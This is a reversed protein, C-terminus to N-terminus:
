KKKVKYLVLIGLIAGIGFIPTMNIFLSDISTDTQNNDTGNGPEEPPTTDPPAFYTLTFICSEEIIITYSGAQLNFLENEPFTGYSVDLVVYNWGREVKAYLSEHSCTYNGEPLDAQFIHIPYTPDSILVLESINVTYQEAQLVGLRVNSPSSSQYLKIYYYDTRNPSFTLYKRMIKGGPVTYPTGLLYLYLPDNYLEIDWFLSSEHYIYYIEDAFLRITLYRIDYDVWYETWNEGYYTNLQLKYPYAPDSGDGSTEISLNIEISVMNPRQTLPFLLILFFVFGLLFIRYNIKM